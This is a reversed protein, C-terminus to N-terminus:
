TLSRHTRSQLSSTSIGLRRSAHLQHGRSAAVVRQLIHDAILDVSRRLDFDGEEDLLMMLREFELRERQCLIDGHSHTLASRLCAKLEAVNERWPYVELFGPDLLLDDASLAPEALSLSRKRYHAAIVPIDQVRERLPPIVFKPLRRLMDRLPVILRSQYPKRFDVETTTFIIRAQVRRFRGAPTRPFGRRSIADVLLQQVHPRACEINRLLLTSPMEIYGERESSSEPPETGFLALRQDRETLLTFNLSRLIEDQHPGVSHILRGVLTKGVGPEGIILIHYGCNALGLVARRISRIMPHSGLLKQPMM